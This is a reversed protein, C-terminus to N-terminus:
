PLAALAEIEVLVGPRGLAAVYVVSIATAHMGWVEQSAQFGDQISQGPTLYITLKIVNEQTGGAAILVTLLNQLAQKTQSRIDDGVLQGAADVGNQGGIVLLRGPNVAMVGQSFAPSRHMTEPNIHIIEM